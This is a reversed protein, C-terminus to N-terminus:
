IVDAFTKEVRRFYYLGTVFLLAVISFSLAILQLNPAQTGFLAWRFIEIVGSMPNLAALFQLKPSIREIPYIVPTLFIGMQVFYPVVHGVDRFRVNLATLWLSVSLTSLMCALVLIPLLVVGWGPWFSQYAMFLFLVVLQISLDVLSSVVGTLPLVLRPFYVKTLLNSNAVVSSSSLMLSNSFYSWLVLGSLCFLSYPVPATVKEMEMMRGFVFVFIALAFIPKFLAWGFGVISQRYHATVDRWVLLQLLDRYRWLELLNLHIGATIPEIVTRLAPPQGNRDASAAQLPLELPAVSQCPTGERERSEVSTAM